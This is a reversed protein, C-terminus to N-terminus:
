SRRRRFLLAIGSVLCAGFLAGLVVGGTAGFFTGVDREPIGPNFLSIMLRRFVSLRAGTVGGCLGGLLAGLIAPYNTTSDDIKWARHAGSVAFGGVLGLLAGLAGMFAWARPDRAFGKGFALGLLLSLLVGVILWPLVKINM